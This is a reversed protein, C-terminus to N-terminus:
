GTARGELGGNQKDDYGYENKGKLQIKSGARKVRRTHFVKGVLATLGGTTVVAGATLAASAICAPCM